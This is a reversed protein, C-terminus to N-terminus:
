DFRYEISYVLDGAKVNKYFINRLVSKSYVRSVEVVKTSGELSISVAYNEYKDPSIPFEIFNLIEQNAKGQNEYFYWEDEFVKLARLDDVMAFSNSFHFESLFFTLLALACLAFVGIVLITVPVSARKNIKM